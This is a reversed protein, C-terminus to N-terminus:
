CGCKGRVHGCAKNMRIELSKTICLKIKVTYDLLSLVNEQLGEGGEM